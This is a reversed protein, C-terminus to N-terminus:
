IVMFLHYFLLPSRLLQIAAASKSLFSLIPLRYRVKCCLSFELGHAPSPTAPEHQPGRSLGLNQSM